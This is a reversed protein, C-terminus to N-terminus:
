SKFIAEHKTQSHFIQKGKRNKGVPTKYVVMETKYRVGNESLYKGTSSKSIVTRSRNM